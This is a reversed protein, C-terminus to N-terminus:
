RLLYMLGSFLAAPAVTYFFDFWSAVGSNTVKQGIEVFAAFFCTTALGVTAPYPFGIKYAAFATIAFIGAGALAHDLKDSIGTRPLDRMVNGAVSKTEM